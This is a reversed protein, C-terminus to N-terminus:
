TYRKEEKKLEMISLLVGELANEKKIGFLLTSFSIM